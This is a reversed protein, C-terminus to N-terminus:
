MVLFSISIIGCLIGIVHNRIENKSENKYESIDCPSQMDCGLVKNWKNFDVYMDNMTLQLKQQSGSSLNDYISAYYECYCELYTTYFLWLGNCNIDDIYDVEYCEHYSERLCQNFTQYVKEFQTARECQSININQHNCNDTTCCYEYLFGNTTTQLNGYCDTFSFTTDYYVCKGNAYAECFSGGGCSWSILEGTYAKFRNSFPTSLSKTVACFTQISSDDVACTRPNLATLNQEKFGEIFRQFHCSLIYEDNENPPCSLSHDSDSYINYVAGGCYTYPTDSIYDSRCTCEVCKDNNKNETYWVDGLAHHGCDCKPCDYKKMSCHTNEFFWRKHENICDVMDYECASALESYLKNNEFISTFSDACTTTGSSDCHCYKTCETTDWYTEGSITLYSGSTCTNPAIPPCSYENWENQSCVGMIGDCQYVLDDTSTDYYDYYIDCTCNLCQQCIYRYNQQLEGVLNKTSCKCHPCSCGDSVYILDDLSNCEDPYYKNAKKIQHCHNMIFEFSLTSKQMHYGGTVCMFICTENVESFHGYECYNSNSIVGTFTLLLAYVKLM